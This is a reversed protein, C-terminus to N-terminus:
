ARESSGTTTSAAPSAESDRRWVDPVWATVRPVSWNRDGLIGMAAPVVVSRVLTADIVLAIAVGFGMQQFAALDGAALAAFVAVIIAAAGTILRATSGVGHVIADTTSGTRRYREHIRSLLFVQYDMSLGFLVAFLFVPVWADIQDVRVFGMLDAGLGHQFVLVLLGYAAGVSLLNAAIAILPVALSRFAALLLVFSLSLVFAVVVPLWHSVLAVYDRAEAPGGGVLVRHARGPFAIPVYSDRLRGIAASARRSNSEAYLPVVLLVVGPGSQIDAARAAFIRDRALLGRLRALGTRAWADSPRADVVIEVPQTSGRPFDRELAIVGREAVSGPPLSAAGSAGLRLGLAPSALALLLAVALVLSLAPRRLVGRAVKSWIGREADRAAASRRRLAPLRLRDVRDDLVMMLAPLFTLAVAVSVVGVVMAGLGLSRLITDPMLFMGAMALSFATGSFVVARTATGSAALIADRTPAGRAREDRIRSVIFLSYDIGLALGMAVLMNTVFLNLVAIQGLLAVVGLAVAISVLAMVVPIAAGALSGFVILLVVIAAPLGFRLEGRRLDRESARGFDRGGTFHGAVDVAFDGRGDADEVVAILREIREHGDRGLVLPLMTAHRDRSVLLGGDGDLYSRIRRVGGAARLSATLSRVRARFAADSVSARESRVSVVEDVADRGPLREGILAAARDSEPHATVSSEHTLASPLLAGGLALGLVVLLVWVALVQRPRRTALEALRRPTTVARAPRSTFDHWRV